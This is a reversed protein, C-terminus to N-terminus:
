TSTTTGVIQRARLSGILASLHKPLGPVDAPEAADDRPPADDTMHATYVAPSLRSRCLRLRADALKQSGSTCRLRRVPGPDRRMLSGTTAGCPMPAPTLRWCPASRRGAAHPVTWSLPTVPM